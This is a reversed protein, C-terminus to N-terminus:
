PCSSSTCWRVCEWNEADYLASLEGPQAYNGGGAPIVHTRDSFACDVGLRNLQELQGLPGLITSDLKLGPFSHHDFSRLNTAVNLLDVVRIERLLDLSCFWFPYRQQLALAVHPPGPPAIVETDDEEMHVVLHRLNGALPTPTQLLLDLADNTAAATRSRWSDLHVPSQWFRDLAVPFLPHSKPLAYLVAHITSIDTVYALITAFVDGDLEVM